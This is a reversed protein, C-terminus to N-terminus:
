TICSKHILFTLFYANSKWIPLSATYSKINKKASYVTKSLKISEPANNWLKAADNVFTSTLIKGGYAENLINIIVSM